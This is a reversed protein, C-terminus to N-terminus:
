ATDRRPVGVVHSLPYAFLIGTNPETLKGLVQETVQILREVMEEGDVISFITRHHEEGGHFFSRITPMLPIDDRYGVKQRIRAIGTSEVITIGGVGATEWADFVNLEHKIDDIVLTVLYYM